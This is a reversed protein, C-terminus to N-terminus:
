LSCCLPLKVEEAPSFPSDHEEVETSAEAAQLLPQALLERSEASASSEEALATFDDDARRDLLLSSSMSSSSSSSPKIISTSKAAEPVGTLRSELSVGVGPSGTDDDFRPLLPLM